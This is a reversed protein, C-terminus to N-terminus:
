AEFARRLSERWRKETSEFADREVGWASLWVTAEPGGGCIDYGLRFLGDNHNDVSGAFDTPPTHILVTGEISEGSGLVVRYRDGTSLSPSLGERVFGARALKEWAETPALKVPRRLWFARRTRGRHRELYHKLSRLEYDWGRRTGDFETDWRAERGFGSHVLRLVTRGGRGEIFWDVAIQRQEPDPAAGAPTPEMWSTRLHRPPDWEVIRCTGVMDPAWRYTINGQPGPKAEAELPFWNVLEAPETIARWITDPPADITLEHEHSRTEVERDTRIKPM